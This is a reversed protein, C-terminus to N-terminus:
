FTFKMPIFTILNNQAEGLNVTKQINEEKITHNYWKGIKGYKDM